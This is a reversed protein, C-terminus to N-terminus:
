PQTEGYARGCTDCYGSANEDTSFIPTPANGERDLAGALADAHDVRFYRFTCRPCHIAAEYAYATIKM